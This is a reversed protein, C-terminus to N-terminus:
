LRAAIEAGEKIARRADLEGAVRAGGVLYWNKPLAEAQGQLVDRVSDQGTCLIITDVELVAEEGDMRYHLGVDDIGLYDVGALMRVKYQLLSLRHAWGTTKGPGAGMRGAKRQLLTVQRRITPEVPAVLGGEGGGQLDVGWQQCWSAIAQQPEHLLFECMDVGIGGAVVVAVRQGPIKEGRLVEAYNMVKPHDVGPISPIRPRVGTAVVVADFTRLQAATVQHELRLDVGTRQIEAQFYRVTERFEEKGPVAMAMTFQGGVAPAAEFLTVQHGREAAVTAASMGAMGAGVVAVKKPSGTKLYVLETEFGARPNVLCTARRGSFTQDLCGQNCAICTNIQEPHGAAVKNIFAPDALLPRAMSILDAEGSALIAEADEPTNIRNSAVVPIRLNARLAGTVQRFAARPVSTAITPIRAEHWGIGTNLLTVGAAELARAIDIVEQRSNGGEVLDLLSLRYSIIFRAGVRGRTEKVIELPLRMRNELAGGWRDTRQNVRRCIFQNLLYGESGMIEVGDYGALQALRACQGFDKITALIENETMEKPKFKSIASKTASASVVFPHFGYRGAHLIQMLIKGGEKHVAQTVRRHNIVDGYRNMTGGLPLLWGQRNPSIGGTIILGVGGRAREAFYAALKGYNYFRDELGTHMSGMVLRNRLQTFGLDLPQLLHPFQENM